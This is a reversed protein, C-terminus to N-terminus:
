IMRKKDTTETERYIITWGQGYKLPKISYGGLYGLVGEEILKASPEGSFAASHEGSLVSGMSMFEGKLIKWTIQSVHIEPVCMWGPNSEMNAHIAHNLAERINDTIPTVSMARMTAPTDGPHCGSIATRTTM